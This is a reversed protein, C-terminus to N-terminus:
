HPDNLVNNCQWKKKLFAVEITAMLFNVSVTRAKGFCHSANKFIFSDNHSGFCLSDSTHGWPPHSGQPCSCSVMEMRSKKSFLLEYLIEAVFSSVSVLLGGQQGLLSRAQLVPKGEQTRRSPVLCLIHTLEGIM